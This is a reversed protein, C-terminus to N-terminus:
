EEELLGSGARDDEDVAAGLQALDGKVSLRALYFPADVGIEGPHRLQLTEIL